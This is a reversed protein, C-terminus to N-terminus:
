PSSSRNISIAEALYKAVADGYARLGLANFHMDNPIYYREPREAFAARLDAKADYFGVNHRLAAQHITDSVIDNFTAGTPQLHELHPHHIYILRNGTGTLSLGTQTLDELTREFYAIQPGFKARAEDAPARSVAFGDTPKNAADEAALRPYIVRTFYSKSLLRWLYLPKKTSDVLGQHFSVALPTARVAVISGKDDRITLERYRYYDDYIDTEDVDIIVIDPRLLPILRKAQPVYISPSYSAEGANFVCVIKGLSQFYNRVHAPINDNAGLGQMFSDGLFLLRPACDEANPEAMQQIGNADWDAGLHLHNLEDSIGFSMAQPGVDLDYFPGAIQQARLLLELLCATIVANILIVRTFRSAAELV